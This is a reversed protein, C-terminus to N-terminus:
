RRGFWRIVGYTCIVGLSVGSLVQSTNELTAWRKIQSWFNRSAARAGGVAVFPPVKGGKDWGRDLLREMVDDDMLALEEFSWQECVNVMWKMREKGVVGGVGPARARLRERLAGVKDIVTGLGGEVPSMGEIHQEIRQRISSALKPGKGNTSVMIQLPGQRIQSGFYFDCSPPIDAVNTPIHRAHALEYIFKSTTVDDIATLVMDVGELDDVDHYESMSTNSTASTTSDGLSTSPLHFTRDHYTIRRSAYPDDFIRYRVEPHLNTSPAILTVHADAELVSRLRGSAVEGGGVILVRKDRLQWALLLSGGKTIPPYRALHPPPPIAASSM